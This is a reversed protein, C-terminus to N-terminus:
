GEAARVAKFAVDVLSRYTELKKRTAAAAEATPPAASKKRGHM